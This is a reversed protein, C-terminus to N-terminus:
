VAEALEAAAEAPPEALPVSVLFDAVSVAAFVPRGAMEEEAAGDDVAAADEFIGLSLVSVSM